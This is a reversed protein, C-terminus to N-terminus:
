SFMSLIQKEIEKRYDEEKKIKQRFEDLDNVSCSVFIFVSGGGALICILFLSGM